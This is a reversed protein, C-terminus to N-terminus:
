CCIALSWTCAFLYAICSPDTKNPKPRFWSGFHDLNTQFRAGLVLGLVFWGMYIRTRELWNETWFAIIWCNKSLVRFNSYFWMIESVNCKTLTKLVCIMWRNKIFAYRITLKKLMAWLWYLFMYFHNM